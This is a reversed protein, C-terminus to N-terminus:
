MDMTLRIVGRLITKLDIRVVDNDEPLEIDKLDQDEDTIKSHAIKM